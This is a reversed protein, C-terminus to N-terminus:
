TGVPRCIEETIAVPRTDFSPFDMVLPEGERKVTLIGSLTSFEVKDPSQEILTMIVYATALTAHGCLEVEGCPIFWHLRYVGVEKVAFAAEFLDNEIAVKQM